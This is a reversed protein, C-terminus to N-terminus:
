TYWAHAHARWRRWGLGAGRRHESLCQRRATEADACPQQYTTLPCDGPRSRGAEGGLPSPIPCWTRDRNVAHRVIVCAVEQRVLHFWDVIHEAEPSMYLQLDRVEDGGDSLFTIQQNLQFGQSKLVEYLRRTPKTDVTQVFGFRKSSPHDEDEERKFALT